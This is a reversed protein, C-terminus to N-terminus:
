PRASRPPMYTASPLGGMCSDTGEESFFPTHSVVVRACHSPPSLPPSSLAKLPSYPRRCGCGPLDFIVLPGRPPPLRRLRPPPRRRRRRRLPAQRPPRRPRGPPPQTRGPHRQRPPRLRQPPRPRRRKRRPPPRPRGLPAPHRLPLRLPRLRRRPHLPLRHLLLPAQQLRRRRAPRPLLPLQPATRRPLLPARHPGPRQPLRRRRRDRGFTPHRLHRRTPRLRAHALQHPRQPRKLLVPRQPLAPLHRPRRHRQRHRRLRRPKAQQQPRLHGPVVQRAPPPLARRHRPREGLAHAPLGRRRRRRRRRQRHRPRRNGLSRPALLALRVPPPQPLFLPRLRRKRRPLRLRPWHARPLARNRRHARLGKGTRPVALGLRASRQSTAM